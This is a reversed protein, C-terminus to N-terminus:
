QQQCAPQNVDAKEKKERATEPIYRSDVVMPPTFGQQEILVFPLKHIYHGAICVDLTIVPEHRIGGNPIQVKLDRVLPRRLVVRPLVVMADSGVVFQVITGNSQSIYRLGSVALRSLSGHNDIRANVVVSNKGLITVSTLAGTAHVTACSLAIWVLLGYAAVRHSRELNM